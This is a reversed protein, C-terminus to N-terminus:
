CHAGCKPQKKNSCKVLTCFCTYFSSYVLSLSTRNWSICCVIRSRFNSHFRISDFRFRVIPTFHNLRICLLQSIHTFFVKHYQIEHSQRKLSRGTTPLANRQSLPLQVQDPQGSQNSALSM